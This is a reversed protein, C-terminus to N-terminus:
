PLLRLRNAELYRRIGTWGCSVAKYVLQFFADGAQEQRRAFQWGYQACLMVFCGALAQFVDKLTGQDFSNERDHKVANYADYWSLAQKEDPAVPVVWGGFPRLPDLWPYWPIAVEYEPLRMAPSLKVYDARTKAKAHNAELIGKWQAEVETAAIILLNRIEHGYVKFNAKTPHVVRCIAQLEQILAHLQGTSITRTYLAASSQDPNAGPSQGPGTHGPRAMRPYYEGLGLDLKHLEWTPFEKALKALSNEGPATKFTGLESPWVDLHFADSDVAIFREAIGEITSVRGLYYETL